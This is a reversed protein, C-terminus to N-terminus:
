EKEPDADLRKKTKAGLVALVVELPVFRSGLDRYGTKRYRDSLIYREM